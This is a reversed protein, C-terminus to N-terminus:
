EAIEVTLVPEVDAMAATQKPPEFVPEAITGRLEYSALERPPEDGPYWRGGALVVPCGLQQGSRVAAGAVAMVIWRVVHRHDAPTAGPKGSTGRILARWGCLCGTTPQSRPSGLVWAGPWTDVTPTMIVQPRLVAFRDTQEPGDIVTAGVGLQVVRARIAAVLADYAPVYTAMSIAQTM